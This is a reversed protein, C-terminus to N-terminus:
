YLTVVKAWAADIKENEILPTLFFCCILIGKRWRSSIGETASIYELIKMYKRIIIRLVSAWFQVKMNSHVTIIPLIDVQTKILLIDPNYVYWACRIHCNRIKKNKVRKLYSWFTSWSDKGKIHVRSFNFTENIFISNTLLVENEVLKHQFLFNMISKRYYSHWTYDSYSDNFSAKCITFFFYVMYMFYALKYLVFFNLFELFSKVHMSKAIM